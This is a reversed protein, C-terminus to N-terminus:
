DTVGQAILTLERDAENCSKRASSGCSTCVKIKSLVANISPPETPLPLSRGKSMISRLQEQLKLMGNQCRHTLTLNRSTRLMEMSRGARIIRRLGMILWQVTVEESDASLSAVGPNSHAAKSVSSGAASVYESDISDRDQVPEEIYETPSPSDAASVYPTQDSSVNDGLVFYVMLGSFLVLIVLAIKTEKSWFDNKETM